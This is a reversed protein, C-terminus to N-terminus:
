TLPPTALAASEFWIAPATETPAEYSSGSWTETLPNEYFPQLPALLLRVLSDM